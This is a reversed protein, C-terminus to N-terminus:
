EELLHASLCYHIQAPQAAPKRPLKPVLGRKLESISNEPEGNVPSRLPRLGAGRCRQVASEVGMSVHPHAEVSPAIRWDQRIYSCLKLADKQGEP